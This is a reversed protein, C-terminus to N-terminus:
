MLNVEVRNRGAVKGRYLATDARQILTNFDQDGPLLQSIGITATIRITTVGADIDTTSLAELLRNGIVVAQDITTEPLLFIFEEGGLRGIIDVTRLNKRCIAATRRLVDDGVGHGYTDNVRKFHDLDVICISLATNMRRAREIEHGFLMEYERRNYLGTLPDTAALEKLAAELKLRQQIERELERNIKATKALLTFQKRQLFALRRATVAGVVLPLMLIFFLGILNARSSGMVYRTLLTIAVGYAASCFALNFRIPMFMLLSIIMLMIVGVTWSVADPRYIFLLMFGSFGAIIVPTVAYSLRFLSTDRRINLIIITLALSIVMRYALLYFFAPRAGITQYDPIAFLMLLLAWVILAFRLQRTLIHQFHRQFSQETERDSFEALWLSIRYENTYTTM